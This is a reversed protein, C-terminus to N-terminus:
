INYAKSTFKYRKGSADKKLFGTQELNDLAELYPLYERHLNSSIIVNQDIQITKGDVSSIVRVTGDETSKAYSLIIQELKTKKDGVNNESEKQKIEVNTIKCNEVLDKIKSDLRAANYNEYGLKGGLVSLLDHIESSEDLSTHHFNSLPKPLSSFVGKNKAILMPIKNAGWSAGIEFLVYPSELSNQSMLGLILKSTKIDNLLTADVNDGSKLKFGPVSTCRIKENEIRFALQLLEILIKVTEVDKSAHSIFIDFIMEEDMQKNAKSNGIGLSNIINIYDDEATYDDFYSSNDIIFDRIEKIFIEGNKRISYQHMIFDRRKSKKTEILKSLFERYYCSRCIKTGNILENNSDCIKTQDFKIDYISGRDRQTIILEETFISTPDYIFLRIDNQM